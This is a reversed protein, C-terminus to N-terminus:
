GMVEKMFTFSGFAHRRFQSLSTSDLGILDISLKESEIFEKETAQKEDSNRRDIIQTYVQLTTPLKLIRGVKKYVAFTDWLQEWNEDSDRKLLKKTEIEEM